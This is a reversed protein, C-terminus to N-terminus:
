IKNIIKAIFSHTQSISSFQGRFEAFCMKSLVAVRSTRLIETFTRRNRVTSSISSFEILSRRAMGCFVNRSANWFQFLRQPLPTSQLLRTQDLQLYLLLNLFFNPKKISQRRLVERVVRCRYTM